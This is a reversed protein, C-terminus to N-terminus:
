EAQFLIMVPFINALSFREMDALGAIVFLGKLFASNEM